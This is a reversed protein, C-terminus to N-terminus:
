VRPRTIPFGGEVQVQSNMDMSMATPPPLPPVASGMPDYATTAAAATGTPAPTASHPLPPPPPVPLPSSLAPHSLPVPTAMQPLVGSPTPWHGPLEVTSYLMLLILWRMGKASCVVTYVVTDNILVIM